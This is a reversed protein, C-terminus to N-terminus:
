GPSGLARAETIGARQLNIFYEKCRDRYQKDQGELECPSLSENWPNLHYHGQCTCAKRAGGVLQAGGGRRVLVLCFAMAWWKRQALKMERQTYVLLQVTSRITTSIKPKQKRDDNYHFM